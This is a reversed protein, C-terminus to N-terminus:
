VMQNRRRVVYVDPEAQSFIGSPTWFNCSVLTPGDDLAGLDGSQITYYIIGEAPTGSNVGQAIGRTIVDGHPKTLFVNLATADSLDQGTDIAIVDGYDGTVANAM